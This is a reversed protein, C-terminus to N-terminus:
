SQAEIQKLMDLTVDDYADVLEPWVERPIRQRHKMMRVAGPKRGIAEAVATSGGKAEIFKAVPHASTSM